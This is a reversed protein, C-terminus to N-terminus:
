FVTPYKNEGDIGDNIIKSDEIEVNSRIAYVANTSRIRSSEVRTLKCNSNESTWISVKDLTTNEIVM